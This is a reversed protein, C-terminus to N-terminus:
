EVYGWVKAIAHVVRLTNVLQQSDIANQQALAHAVKEVDSLSFQRVGVKGSARAVKIDEGDLVFGGTKERWRVWHAGREFFVKGVESVTFHPGESVDIGDLIFKDEPISDLIKIVKEPM